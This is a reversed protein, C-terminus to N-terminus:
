VLEVTERCIALEENTPILCVKVKSDDTTIIREEGRIDNKVDDIEIGLYGLYACVNKRTVKDNEGLGATFAIADVGNMAAVYSGIYKAVRYTYVELAAKALENGAAAAEELDRFDSSLGGSMGLVGSEKNL